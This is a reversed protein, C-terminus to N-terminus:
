IIFYNRDGYLECLLQPSMSIPLSFGAPRLDAIVSFIFIMFFYFSLDLPVLAVLLFMLPAIPAWVQPSRPPSRLPLATWGSCKSPHARTMQISLAM